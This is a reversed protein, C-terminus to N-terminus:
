ATQRPPLSLTVAQPARLLLRLCDRFSEVYRLDRWGTLTAQSISSHLM